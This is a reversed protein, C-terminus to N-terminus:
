GPRLRVGLSRCPITNSVAWCWRRVEPRRSQPTAPLRGKRVPSPARPARPARPHRECRRSGHADSASDIPQTLLTRRAPRPQAPDRPQVDRRAKKRSRQSVRECTPQIAVRARRVETSRLVDRRSSGLPELRLTRRDPGCSGCSRAAARSCVQREVARSDISTAIEVPIRSKNLGSRFCRPLM